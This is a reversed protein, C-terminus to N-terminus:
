WLITPNEYSIQQARKECPWNHRFKWASAYIHWTKSAVGVVINVGRWRPPFLLHLCCCVPLINVFIIGNLYKRARVNDCNFLVRSLKIEGKCIFSFYLWCEFHNHYTKILRNWLTEKIIAWDALILQNNGSIVHTIEYGGKNSLFFHNNFNGFTFNCIMM